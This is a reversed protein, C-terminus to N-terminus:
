SSVDKNKLKKNKIRTLADQIYQQHQQRTAIAQRENKEQQQKSVRESHAYFRKRAHNSKKFADEDILKPAPIMDICDVPCPAVCLECGTCESGIVTHMVKPAGLIADVPCATICKTCGICEDERIIALMPQKEKSKMEDIFPEVSAGTLEGLKKLTKVGGPPCLNIPAHEFVIAEAYPMCSKYQCLGCQTQPLLADVQEPTVSRM